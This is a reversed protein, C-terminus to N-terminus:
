GLKNAMRQAVSPREGRDLCDWMMPLRDRKLVDVFEIKVIRRM